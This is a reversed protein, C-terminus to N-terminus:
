ELGDTTIPIPRRNTRKIEIKFRLRNWTRNGMMEPSTWWVGYPSAGDATPQLEMEYCVHGFEVMDGGAHELIPTIFVYAKIPESM